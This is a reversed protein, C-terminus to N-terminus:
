RVAPECVFTALAEESPALPHPKAKHGQRWWRAVCYDEVRRALSVATPEGALQIPAVRVSLLGNRNGFVVDTLYRDGVMVLREAPCGFHAEAEVASGAPKKEAHRLVPIGLAAELAEAESGEPDFQALGASNSFLVLRGEFAVRCRELAPALAPAVASAYPATLTNDKDFVCGRFGARALAGWDLSDISPVSLHPLALPANGWAIQAFLAIGASNFSQGMTKSAPLRGAQLVRDTSERASGLDSKASCVWVEHAPVVCCHRSSCLGSRATSPQEKVLRSSLM